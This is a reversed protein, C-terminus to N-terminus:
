QRICLVAQGHFESCTPAARAPRPSAGEAPPSARCPEHIMRVDHDDARAGRSHGARDLGHGGARPHQHDLLLLTRAAREVDAEALHAAGARPKLGLAPDVIRRGRMESVDRAYVV